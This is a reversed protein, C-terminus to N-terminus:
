QTKVISQSPTKVVNPAMCANLFQNEKRQSWGYVVYVLKKSKLVGHYGNEVCKVSVFDVKM